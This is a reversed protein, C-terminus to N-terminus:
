NEGPAVDTEGRLWAIADLVGQEYSKDSCQTGEGCGEAAWILVRGVEEDPRNVFKM